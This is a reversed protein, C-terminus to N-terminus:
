DGERYNTSWHTGLHRATTFPHHPDTLIRRVFEAARCGFPAGEGFTEAM